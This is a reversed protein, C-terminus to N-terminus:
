EIYNLMDRLTVEFGINGSWGTLMKLKDANGIVSQIESKRVLHEKKLVRMKRGSINELMGIVDAICVGRGSAINLTDGSRFDGTVGAYAKVVDRVDTFDRITRINGLEISDAGRRFANVIKPVVFRESQGPGTHNFPRFIMYEMGTEAGFAKVMMEGAAKGAGYHNVPCLPFSEDIPLREEPVSGYVQASSIFVFSPHRALAVCARLLNLTGGVNIDYVFSKENKDVDAVAALHFVCDPAIESVAAELLKGDAIDAAIVNESNSHTDIGCVEHGSASLERCLYRGVFGNIGTILIKM